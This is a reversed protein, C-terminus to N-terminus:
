MFLPRYKIRQVNESKVGGFRGFSVESRDCGLGIIVFRKLKQSLTTLEVMLWLWKILYM